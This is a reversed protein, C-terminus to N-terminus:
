NGIAFSMEATSMSEHPLMKIAVDRITKDDIVYVTELIVISRAVKFDQGIRVICFVGIADAQHIFMTLPIRGVCDAIMVYSNNSRSVSSAAHRHEFKPTSEIACELRHRVNDASVASALLSSRDITSIM